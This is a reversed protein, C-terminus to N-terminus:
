ATYSINHECFCDMAIHTNILFFCRKLERATTAMIPISDGEDRPARIVDPIKRYTKIPSMAPYKEARKYLVNLPRSHFRLANRVAVKYGPMTNPVHKKKFKKMQSLCELPATGNLM